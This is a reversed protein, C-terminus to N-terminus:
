VSGKSLRLYNEIVDITIRINMQRFKDVLTKAVLNNWGKESIETPKQVSNLKLNNLVSLDNNNLSAIMDSTLLGARYSIKKLQDSSKIEM